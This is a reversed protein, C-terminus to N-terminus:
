QASVHGSCGMEGAVAVVHGGSCCCSGFAHALCSGVKTNGAEDSYAQILYTAVADDAMTGPRLVKLEAGSTGGTASSIGPTSSIGAPCRRMPTHTHALLPQWTHPWRGPQLRSAVRGAAAAWDQQWPAQWHQLAEGVTFDATMDSKTGAGHVNATAIELRYPGAPLAVDETFSTTGATTTGAAALDLSFIPHTLNTPRYLLATYRRAPLAPPRKTTLPCSLAGCVCRLQQVSGTMRWGAWGM